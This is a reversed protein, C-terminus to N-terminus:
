PPPRSCSRMRSLPCVVNDADGLLCYVLMQRDGAFSHLNVQREDVLDAMCKIFM